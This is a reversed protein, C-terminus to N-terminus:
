YNHHATGSVSSGTLLIAMIARNDAMATTKLWDTNSRSHNSFSVNLTNNAWLNPM